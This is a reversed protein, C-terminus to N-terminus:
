PLGAGESQRDLNPSYYPDHRGGWRREWGAREAFRVGPRRTRCEDHRLLAAAEYIVQYGAERARLCLDADNYNVPFRTDFGGLQEFVARRVAMCAGTVASVERTLNWWNWYGAGFTDRQPHGTGDGIGVAMGAHQIAGGPYVLRAGVVGVEPRVAQAALAALWREDLPLVDDNLFVLVEGSAHRAGMNNMSAFDFPGTDPVVRAGPARRRPAGALHEVVV